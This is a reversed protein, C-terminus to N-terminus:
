SLIGTKSDVKLLAMQVHESTLQLSHVLGKIKVYQPESNNL